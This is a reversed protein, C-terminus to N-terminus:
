NFGAPQEAPLGLMEGVTRVLAEPLVPKQMVRSFGRSYAVAVEAVSLTMGTVALLGTHRSVGAFADALEIGDGDPLRWDAIAVAPHERRSLRVADAISSADLVRYDAMELVVRYLERTDRDDDVVLVLPRTTSQM